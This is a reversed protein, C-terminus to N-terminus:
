SMVNLFQDIIEWNGANYELLYYGGEGMLPEFIRTVYVLAQTHSNNFGVRSFATCGQSGPYKEKLVEGWNSESTIELFEPTSLLVYKVGLNMTTPLKSSVANREIYNNLTEDSIDSLNSMIYDRTEQEDQPFSDGFTDERVIATTGSFDSFFLAYIAQEDQEILIPQDDMMTPTNNPISTTPVAPTNEHVFTPMATPDLSSTTILSCAITVTFCLFFLLYKIISVPM